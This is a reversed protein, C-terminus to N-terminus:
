MINMLLLQMSYYKEKTKAKTYDKEPAKNRGCFIVRRLTSVACTM